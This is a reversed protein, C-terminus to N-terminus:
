VGSFVDTVGAVDLLILVLLVLVATELIGEGAPLEGLKGHVMAVEQPTMSDVRELANRPDVGLAVLEERVDERSVLDKVAQRQDALRAEESLQQNSILAALAAPQVTAFLFFVSFLACALRKPTSPKFM